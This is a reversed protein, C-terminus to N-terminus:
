REQRVYKSVRMDKPHGYYISSSLMRVASSRTRYIRFEGNADGTPFWINHENKTPQRGEILWIYNKM